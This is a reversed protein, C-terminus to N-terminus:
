ILIHKETRKATIDSRIDTKHLNMQLDILLDM